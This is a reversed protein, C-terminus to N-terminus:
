SLKNEVIFFLFGGIFGMVLGVIFLIGANNWDNNFLAILVLLVGTIILSSYTAVM